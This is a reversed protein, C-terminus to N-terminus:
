KLLGAARLAKKIVGKIGFEAHAAPPSPAPRAAQAPAGKATLGWAKAIEFSASLGVDLMFPGVVGCADAGSLGLPHGHGMGTITYSSIVADGRTNRWIERRHGSVTDTEYPANAGVGLVDRWQKVIEGANAANVTADAAGHWVSITPWPGRHPSAARVLAGWEAGTRSVMQTMAAFAEPMSNAAGYPLGAIIAGGAFIEPYNALMASTMAGGASIGTIFVRGPDVDYLASARAIMQRISAAEGAGRATDDPEFWNFCLAANNAAQQEPCLLAFGFRDALSVWGAGHQYSEATQTCGHLVVVLAPNPGLGEPDFVQMKLGGPNGGFAPIEALRGSGAAGQAEITAAAAAARGAIARRYRRLAATTDGLGAM